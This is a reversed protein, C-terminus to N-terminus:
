QFRTALYMISYISVSMKLMNLIATRKGSIKFNNLPSTGSESFKFVLCNFKRESKKKKTNQLKGSNVHHKAFIRIIQKNKM